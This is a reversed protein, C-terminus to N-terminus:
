LAERAKRSRKWTRTSRDPAPARFILAVSGLAIADGDALKERGAVSRGRLFTGNKSGLDELMSRGARVTVRAHLRSVGAADIRIAATEDRGIVHEGERLIWDRDDLVLRPEGCAARHASTM